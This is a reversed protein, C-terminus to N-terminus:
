PGARLGSFFVRRESASSPRVPESAMPWIPLGPPPPPIFPEDLMAQRSLLIVNRGRHLGLGDSVCVLAAMEEVGRNCVQMEACLSGSYKEM